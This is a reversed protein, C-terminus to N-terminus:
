KLETAAAKKAKLEAQMKAICSKFYEVSPHKLELAKEMDAIAEEQKGLAMYSNGRMGFYHPHRGNMKIAATYDAVALDHKGLMRYGDGRGGYFDGKDNLKIAETFDAVAKAYDKKKIYAAGRQGYAAADQPNATLTQTCKEIIADEPTEASRVGSAFGLLVIGAIIAQINKM